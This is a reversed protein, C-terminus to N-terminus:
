QKSWVVIAGCTGTLAQFQPPTGSPSPYIEVAAVENIGIMNLGTVDSAGIRPALTLSGGGGGGTVGLGSGMAAGSQSGTPFVRQGDLWVTM